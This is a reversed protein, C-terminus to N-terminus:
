EEAIKDFRSLAKLTFVKTKVLQEGSQLGNAVFVMNERMENVEINRKEFLGKEKQVFVIAQNGDYTIAEVPIVIIEKKSSTVINLRVNEGPKPWGDETKLLINTIVSRSNEDLGPNISNIVARTITQMNERKTITVSDNVNILRADDPSLYGRILVVRTDLVRSLNELANVSQGLEVFNREIVGDIPAKIKLIPNIQEAEVFAQIESDDVGVAKLKSYSARSSAIARDYEATAKELESTSSINEKVLQTLRKLRNTQFREEANAQLFESVLTGFELSQIRFLVEGKKVWSGENKVISSVQGDIPCSIISTNKPAPFVVGPAIVPYNIFKSSVEVTEVKLEEQEKNSLRIFQPGSKTDQLSPPLENQEAVEEQSSNGTNCSYLIAGTLILLIYLHIQKM